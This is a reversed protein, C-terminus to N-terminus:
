ENASIHSSIIQDIVGQNQLKILANDMQKIFDDKFPFRESHVNSYGIYGKETSIVPGQKLQWNAPLIGHSILQKQTWLIALHDNIYCDVEKNFVGM